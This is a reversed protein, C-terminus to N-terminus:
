VYFNLQRLTRDLPIYIAVARAANVSLGAISRRAVVFMSLASIAATIGFALQIAIISKWVVLLGITLVARLLNATIVVSNYRTYYQCGQLTGSFSAELMKFALTIGVLICAIRADRDFEPTIASFIDSIVFSLLIAAVVTLVALATLIIFSASVFRNLEKIDSRYFAVFRNISLVFARELIMPYRLGTALLAWVGYGTVELGRLMFRVLVLGVVAAVVTSAWNSGANMIIRKRLSM